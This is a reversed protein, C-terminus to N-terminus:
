IFKFLTNIYYVIILVMIILFVYKEWKKRKSLFMVRKILLNDFKESTELSLLAYTFILWYLIVISTDLLTNLNLYLIWVMLLTFFLSYFLAFFDILYDIRLRSLVIYYLIGVVLSLVFFNVIIPNDSATQEGRKTFAMLFSSVLIFTQILRERIEIERYCEKGTLKMLDCIM